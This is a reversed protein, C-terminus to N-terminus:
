KEKFVAIIYEDVLSKVKNKYAYVAPSNIAATCGICGTETAVVQLKTCITGGIIFNKSGKLLAQQAPNILYGTPCLQGGASQTVQMDSDVCAPPISGLCNTAGTCCTPYPKCAECQILQNQLGGEYVAISGGSARVSNFASKYQWYDLVYPSAIFFTTIILLTIVIYKKKMFFCLM